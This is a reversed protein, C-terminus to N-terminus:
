EKAGWRPSRRTGGCVLPTWSRPRTLRRHPAQPWARPARRACSTRRHYAHACSFRARAFSPPDEASLHAERDTGEGAPFLAIVIILPHRDTVDAYRLTIGDVRPTYNAPKWSLATKSHEKGETHRDRTRAADRAHPSRRLARASLLPAM